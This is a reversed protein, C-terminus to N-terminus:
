VFYNKSVQILLNHYENKREILLVHEKLFTCLFLSLNQIFNQEDDTGKRYADKIVTDLPLM